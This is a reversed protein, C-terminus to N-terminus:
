PSAKRYTRKTRAKYKTSRTQGKSVAKPKGTKKDIAILRGRSTKFTPMREEIMKFLLFETPGLLSM